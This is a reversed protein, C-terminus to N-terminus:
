QTQVIEDTIRYEGDLWGIVERAGPHEFGAYRERLLPEREALLDLGVDQLALLDERIMAGLEEGLVAVAARRFADGYQYRDGERYSEVLTLAPIRTLTAQLAPNIAHGAIAGQISARRGTFGRVHLYRSMRQGDNVPYNDWLFPRRRIQEAVRELHSRSLERSCVEEGTWFVEVERQLLTGLRELYDAPRRGFVRDLVPDDSYYSPCVFFRAAGSRQRVWEVIEAQRDALDPLDGRMDDFLVALYDVGVEDLFGLKGQLAERDSDTFGEQAGYPSLGVGFRVGIERCRASLIKLSEAWEAPHPERWWRRLYRDAKPAYIYFGYGHSALYEITGAREEWTWPRGYFGEILGLEVDM